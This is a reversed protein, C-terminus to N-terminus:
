TVHYYQIMESVLSQPEPSDPPTIAVYQKELEAILRSYSPSTITEKVTTVLNGEIASTSPLQVELEGFVLSPTVATISSESLTLRFTLRRFSFLISTKFKFESESLHLLRKIERVWVQKSWETKTQFLLPLLLYLLKINFFIRVM